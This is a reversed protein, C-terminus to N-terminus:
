HLMTCPAPHLYDDCQSLQSYAHRELKCSAVPTAASPKEGNCQANQRDGTSVVACFASLSECYLPKVPQVTFQGTELAWEGAGVMCTVCCQVWSRCGCGDQAQAAECDVHGGQM